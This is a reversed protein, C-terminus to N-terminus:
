VVGLSQELLAVIAAAAGTKGEVFARARSGWELRSAEDELLRLLEDECEKENAITKGIGARAMELAETSNFHRPGFLVPVGHAAAELVSHVGPGFGGGVFAIQGAAYLEALVGIRDVLLVTAAESEHARSLRVSSLAHEQLRREANELNAATPEHPVLIMRVHPLRRRLEAFAPIIVAEDSPWTSGAVLHIAKERWSQPLINQPAARQVRYLVQEYRTDGLVRLREPFRLLPRLSEAASASVAAIVDFQALMERNFNRAVPKHRLSDANASVNADALILQVGRRKAEWMFNPWYDHRIVIGARPQVAEYFKRVQFLGDFPLYCIVEAPFSQRSLHRVASPSFITLVRVAQPFRAGLERLLPQAQECEGMSAAHIWVRPRHSSFPQLQARLDERWGKRGRVGNRIKILAGSAAPLLALAHLSFFLVPIALLNYLCSWV